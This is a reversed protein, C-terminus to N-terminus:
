VPEIDIHKIEKNKKLHRKIKKEILIYKRITYDRPVKIQIFLTYYTGMKIIRIGELEIKEFHSLEELVKEKIELNEEDTTMIGKVNSIIMKIATYFVFSAMLLSGIKDFNITFPLYPETLILLSVLLVVLTSILDAYSEKSAEILQENKLSEGFHKLLYVVIGKLLAVVGLIIFLTLNPKVHGEFFFFQYMIYSGIVILLVGTLLNALHYVQGYGFPYTKNARRKGIKNAILSVIDTFLDVFSQISDSILTSFSLTIGSILKMSAVITNLIMTIWIITNEKM